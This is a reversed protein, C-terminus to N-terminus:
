EARTQRLTQVARASASDSAAASAVSKVLKDDRNYLDNGFYLENGKQYTTFYVIYVPINKPLNVRHDDRGQQMQRHVSDIPWGLVFAGLSDPHQLRICGHSFARVDKNFLEGQPTDHLYINFDNPFMFKILGLSNKDGPKQRVRKRRDITAIEYNNRELYSPDADVKPYIEKAAISDPVIWYPRFVVFQMSDSFVPTAKGQYDQGVIVKMQLAPKGQDFAQLEFAPVNVIIYRDGLTRPLWRYRELNAAIQGLRFQVPKNLAEVTEPGLMSDVGIDHHAQFNAVAGALVSDYPVRTSPATATDPAGASSDSPLYGEARLRGALATLRTRSDLQRPKLAPGKPITPWDGKAALQRYHMLETRLSAYGSDQPRIQQMSRDLPHERLTRALASDIHEERPNIFWSQSVSNPKIQGTLLDEGFAAYTTTMLVDADALQDASHTNNTRLVSVAHALDGIPYSDVRIADSDASALANALETVRETSLGETDLWLPAGAYNAYLTRVHRWTDAGVGKPMAGTLRQQIASKVADMSVGAIADPKPPTWPAVDGAADAEHRGKCAGVALLLAFMAYSRYRLM